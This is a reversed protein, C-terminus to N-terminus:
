RWSAALALGARALRRLGPDAGLGALDGEAVWRLGESEHNAVPAAGPPAVVLFRVDHHEHADEAPPAVRHVDLDVPVPWVALADIGTEEAAERRAVAALNADGDAHGGPQLWRRLKRHFLVLVRAADADVVLASGTLHGPRCTRQLADPRRDVLALIRTREAALVPDDVAAVTARAVALDTSPALRADGARLLEPVDSV